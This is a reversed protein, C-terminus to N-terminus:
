QAVRRDQGRRDPTEQRFCRIGRKDTVAALATCGFHHDSGSRLGMQRRCFIGGPQLKSLITELGMAKYDAHAVAAIIACAKPLTEWPTLPIGYEHECEGSDAIPDHAHVNCGFSQLERVVDIVKSNRM